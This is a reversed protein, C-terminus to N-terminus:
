RDTKGGAIRRAELMQGRILTASSVDRSAVAAMLAHSLAISRSLQVAAIQSSLLGVKNPSYTGTLKTSTKRYAKHAPLTPVYVRNRQDVNRGTLIPPFYHCQGSNLLSMARLELATFDTKLVAHNM